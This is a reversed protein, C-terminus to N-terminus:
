DRRGGKGSLFNPQKKMRISVEGWTRKQQKTGVSSNKGIQTSPSQSAGDKGEGGVKGWRSTGKKEGTPLSIVGMNRWDNRERLM